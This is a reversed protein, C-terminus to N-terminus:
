AVLIMVVSLANIRLVHVGPGAALIMEAAKVPITSAPAMRVILIERVSRVPELLVFEM